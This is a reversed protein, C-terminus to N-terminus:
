VTVGLMTSPSQQNAIQKLVDRLTSQLTLGSYDYGLEEAASQLQNRVSQSLDGLTTALTIGVPFLRGSNGVRGNFRQALAFIAMVGRLVQRYTTANTLADAPIHLSELAAQVTARNAGLTNDLNAPVATVDANAILLQHQANTVDAALLATPELGYDRMEYSVGDLLAPPDPDFRWAFYKPGRTTTGLQADKVVEEIPLLYFRVAM